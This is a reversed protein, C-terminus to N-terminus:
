WDVRHLYAQLSSPYSGAQGETGGAGVWVPNGACLVTQPRLSSQACLAAPLSHSSTTAHRGRPLCPAGAHSARLGPM